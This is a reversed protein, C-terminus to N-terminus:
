DTTHLHRKHIDLRLIKISVEISSKASKTPKKRSILSTIFRDDAQLNPCGFPPSFEAYKPLFILDILPKEWNSLDMTKASICGEKNFFKVDPINCVLKVYFCHKQQDFIDRIQKILEQPEQKSM